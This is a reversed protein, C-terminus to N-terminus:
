WTSTVHLRDGDLKFFRTQETGVWEPNWAVDVKTLWKDGELRYMGTYAAEIVMNGLERQFGARWRQVQAHEQQLNGYTYATGAAIMAGVFRVGTTDGSVGIKGRYEPKAMDAFTKPVEAARIMNRNYGLGVISERDTTWFVRTKDAEEKSDEPFNILHPSSYPMLLKNDRM